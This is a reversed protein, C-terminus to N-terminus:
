ILPPADRSQRKEGNLYIQAIWYVIEGWIQRCWFAFDLLNLPLSNLPFPSVRFLTKGEDKSNCTRQSEESVGTM